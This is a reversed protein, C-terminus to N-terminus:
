KVVDKLDLELRILFTEPHIIVKLEHSGPYLLELRKKMLKVTNTEYSFLNSTEVPKNNSMELVLHQNKIQMSIKVRHPDSIQDSIQRFHNEVLPFLIFPSIKQNSIDGNIEYHLKL